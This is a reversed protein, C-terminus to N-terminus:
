NPIEVTQYKTDCSFYDNTIQKPVMDHYQYQKATNVRKVIQYIRTKVNQQYFAEYM